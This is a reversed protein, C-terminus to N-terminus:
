AQKAGECPQKEERADAAPNQGLDDRCGAHRVRRRVRFDHTHLEPLSVGKEGIGALTPHALLAARARFRPKGARDNVEPEVPRVGFGLLASVVPRHDVVHDVRPLAPARRHRQAHHGAVGMAAAIVARGLPEEVRSAPTELVQDAAVIGGAAARADRPNLRVVRVRNIELFVTGEELRQSVAVIAARLDLKQINAGIADPAFPVRLMGRGQAHALLNDIEVQPRELLRWQDEHRVVGFHQGVRERAARTKSAIADSRGPVLLVPDAGSFYAPTGPM